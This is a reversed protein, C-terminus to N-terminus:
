APRTLAKMLVSLRRVAERRDADRIAKPKAYPIPDKLGAQEFGRRRLACSDCEGCALDNRTYCSWTLELPLGMYTAMEVIEPKSMNVLPATVRIGSTPRTGESVVRNFADVFSARCDPYGSSDASVAGYYVARAGIAEAWSVAMSLLVANRFPVYTVPIEKSELDAKPVAIDKSTLASAGVQNFFNTHVVLQRDRPVGFHAAIRQFARLEAEETRQGYNYHILALDFGDRLALGAATLSDMGGSLLAVAVPRRTAAPKAPELASNGESM